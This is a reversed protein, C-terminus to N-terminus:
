ARAKVMLVTKWKESDPEERPDTEYIELRAAFHDGQATEEADWAIGKEKAWGVLVANVDMLNAYPGWYTLTIYSGAPLTGAIIEQDGPVPQALPIGCEITLLGAMDITRYNIFPAGAIQGGHAAIWAFLRPFAPDVVQPIQDMPTQACIAVYPQSQREIRQPLTLM